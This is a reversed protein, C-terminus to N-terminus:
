AATAGARAPNAPGPRATAASVAPRGKGDGAADDRACPHRLAGEARLCDRYLGTPTIAWSRLGVLSKMDPVCWLGLRSLWPLDGPKHVPLSIIDCDKVFAWLVTRVTDDNDPAVSVSRGKLNCDYFVWAKMGPLYGYARVHKYYGPVWALGRRSFCLVWRSPTHSAIPAIDM